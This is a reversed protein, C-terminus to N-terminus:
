TVSLMSVLRDCWQVSVDRGVELCVFCVPCVSSVCWEGAKGGEFAEGSALMTSIQKSAAFSLRLLFVNIKLNELAVAQSGVELAACTSGRVDDEAFVASRETRRVARSAPM